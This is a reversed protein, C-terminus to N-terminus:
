ENEDMLKNANKEAKKNIYLMMFYFAIGWFLGSILAVIGNRVLESQSLDSSYNIFFIVVSFVLSGVLSGAYYRTKSKQNPLVAIGSKITRITIYFCGIMLVFFEDVWTNLNMDLFYMKVNSSIIIYLFLIWFAHSTYQHSLSVTREDRIKRNNLWKKINM